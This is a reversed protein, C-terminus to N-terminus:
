IYRYSLQHQGAIIGKRLFHSIIRVDIHKYTITFLSENISCTLMHVHKQNEM